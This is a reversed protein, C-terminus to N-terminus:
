IAGPSTILGAGSAMVKLEMGGTIDFNNISPIVNLCSVWSTGSWYSVTTISPNEDMFDAATTDPWSDPITIDNWGSVVSISSASSDSGGGLYGGSFMFLGVALVGVVVLVTSKKM